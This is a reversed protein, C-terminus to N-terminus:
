RMLIGDIDLVAQRAVQADDFPLKTDGVIQGSEHGKGAIVLADEPGLAKICTAIAEARDGTETAEPCGQMVERRIFAADETRPNDDTVTVRDAYEAAAQGMLPRKGRDRDGGAGFLVNLSGSVHPRIAMLVTKLADPTHAFDVFVSGGNPRRAVLQMRGPAGQLKSAAEIVAARDINEEALVLGLAACLNYAQFGGILGLSLDCEAGNIVLRVALGDALPVLEAIEISGGNVGYSLIRCRGGIQEELQSFCPDDANLVAVGDDTLVETFLRAKAALYANMDGHYDLHDRSLNTFAAAKLAVGDVRFQDLGHSSAELVTHTVGSEALQALLGHLMVPDPTTLSEELRIDPSHMGLTGISAARRGLMSWIQRTFVAVSTKGNTGTVAVCHEPQAGYFAAATRAFLRRPEADGILAVGDVPSSLRYDSTTLIASAGSAIAQPIFDRGDRVSGPLAAFLFGPRVERSDATLGIIEAAAAAGAQVM